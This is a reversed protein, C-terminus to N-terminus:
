KQPMCKKITKKQDLHINILFLKGGTDNVGGTTFKGGTDNVSPAGQSAFIEAFKGCFNSFVRTNNELAQPFIVLSFFESAFFDRSM